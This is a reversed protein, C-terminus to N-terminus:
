RAAPADPASPPVSAAGGESAVDQRCQAIDKQDFKAYPAFAPLAAALAQQTEFLAPLRDCLKLAAQRIPEAQAEVRQEIQEPQGNLVGRVADGVTRVALQAGQVGVDMGATAVGAVQARYRVLLERQAPTTPVTRGDILLEGQATIEAPPLGPADFKMSETELKRKAEGMASAVSSGVTEEVTTAAGAAGQAPSEPAPNCGALAIAVATALALPLLPRLTM